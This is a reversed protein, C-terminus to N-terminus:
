RHKVIPASFTSRERKVTAVDVACGARQNFLDLLEADIADIRLRLKQLAGENM